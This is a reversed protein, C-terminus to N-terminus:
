QLQGVSKELHDFLKNYISFVNHVTVDKTKSLVTTFQFFPQIIWLLYDIQCWEEPNLALNRLGYKSCFRNFTYQLQKAQYLM